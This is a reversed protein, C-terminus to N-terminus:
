SRAHRRRRDRGADRDRSATLGHDGTVVICGSGPTIAAARGRAAVEARPPDVMAVLGLFTCAPRAGRRADRRCAPRGATARRRGAGPARGRRLTMSRDSCRRAVTRPGAAGSRRGEDLTTTCRQLLEEPAGKTHLVVQGDDGTWRRCGACRRPRLPVPTVAHDRRTPDARVGVRPALVCCRSRPRTGRRRSDPGLHRQYLHRRGRRAGRRVLGPPPTTRTPSTGSATTAGADSCRCGTGRDAHRDQRYLDREHVGPDRRRLDAERARGRPGARAGGSGARAHDDAATGRPRERGAARDRLGPHRPLSLGTVLTGIPIFALGMGVAVLAILRRSTSSRGSWRAPARGEGTASLAAIRGLETRCGRPTSSRWHRARGTCTTGSFLSTTRTSCRGTPAGATGTYALVPLSEGNLM